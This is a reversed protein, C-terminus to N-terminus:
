RDWGGPLLAVGLYISVLTAIIIFFTDRYLNARGAKAWRSPLHALVAAVIMMFMHELRFRPFGSGTFGTWLMFILGLLAQTDLLGSYAAPLIRGLKPFTKKVIWGYGFVGLALIAAIVILWRLGSHTYLLITTFNM